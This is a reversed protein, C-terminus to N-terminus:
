DFFCFQIKVPFEAYPFVEVVLLKLSYNEFTVVNGRFDLFGSQTKFTPIFTYRASRQLELFNILKRMVGENQLDSPVFGRITIRYNKLHTFLRFWENNIHIRPQETLISQLRQLDQPITYKLVLSNPKVSQFIQDGHILDFKTEWQLEVDNLLPLSQAKFTKLTIFVVREFIPTQSPILPGLESLLPKFQSILDATTTMTVSSCRKNAIEIRLQKYSRLM